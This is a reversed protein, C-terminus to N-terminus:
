NLYVCTLITKDFEFKAHKTEQLLHLECLNMPPTFGDLSWFLPFCKYNSLSHQCGRRCAVAPLNLLQLLEIIIVKLGTRVNLLCTIDHLYM